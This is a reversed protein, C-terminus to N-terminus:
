SILNELLKRARSYRTRATAEPIDLIRAVDAFPLAEIARLVIIQRYNSPLRELAAQADLKEPITESQDAAAPVQNESWEVQIKGSKKRLHSLASNIAIKYLWPKIPRSLDARPLAKFAKVFAEQTIDEADEASGCIRYVVRYISASYRRVLQEFDGESGSVARYALDEDSYTVQTRGAVRRLAYSSWNFANM